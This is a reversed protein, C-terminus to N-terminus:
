KGSGHHNIHHLYFLKRRLISRTDISSMHMCDHQRYQPMAKGVEMWGGTESQIEEPDM